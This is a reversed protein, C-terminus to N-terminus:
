LPLKGCMASCARRKKATTNAITKTIGCDCIITVHSTDPRAIIKIYGVRDGVQMARHPNLRGSKDYAGWGKPPM